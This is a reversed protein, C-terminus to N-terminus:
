PSEEPHHGMQPPIVKSKALMSSSAGHRSRPSSTKKGTDLTLALPQSVARMKDFVRGKVLVQDPTTEIKEFMVLEGQIEHHLFADLDRSSRLPRFRSGVKVWWDGEKVIVRRRGLQCTIEGACRAKVAKIMENFKFDGPSSALLPLDIRSMSYGTEDWVMMQVGRDQSSVLQALPTCPKEARGERWSSGDWWLLGKVDLFHVASGIQVKTKLTLLRYEDGGWEQLFQDFAWVKGGKLNQVYPQDEIPQHFLWSPTMVIEECAELDTVMQMAVEEGELSLPIMALNTAEESFRYSNQEHTLYLKQGSLVTKQDGSTKFALSISQAGSQDPRSNKGIIMLEQFLAEAQPSLKKPILGLPGKGIKAMDFKKRAFPQSKPVQTTSNTLIMGFFFFLSALAIVAKQMRLILMQQTKWAPDIMQTM